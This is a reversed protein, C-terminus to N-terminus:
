VIFIRSTLAAHVHFLLMMVVLVGGGYVMRVAFIGMKRVVLAHTLWAIMLLAQALYFLRLWVHVERVTYAVADARADSSITELAVLVFINALAFAIFACCLAYTIVYREKLYKERFFGM